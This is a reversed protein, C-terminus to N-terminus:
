ISSYPHCLNGLYRSHQGPRKILLQLFPIYRALVRQSAYISFINHHLEYYQEANIYVYDIIYKYLANDIIFAGSLEVQFIKM